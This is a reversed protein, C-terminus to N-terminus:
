GPEILSRLRRARTPHRLKQLAKAEIQRIRERTVSFDNGVEELTHDSREGIGFRMRLVKSERPTLTALVQRTRAALDMSMVADGPSVATEDEILDGLHTEGDEGIPSELSIPEKTIKMVSRVKEVPLEMRAAIEEITPERGLEQVLRRTTRMLNNITEIMHVPVRITRAHDAISRTIAQRIWWTAYTSFKYGRKYEFKEVAKMLGINGDQILDLFQLGRNTYKKAISVVLRLNAEILESKARLLRRQGAAIARHATRLENISLDSDGAIQRLKTEALQLDRGISEIDDVPIHLQRAIQRAKAPNDHAERVLRKVERRPLRTRAEVAAIDQEGDDIRDITEQLKHIIGDYFSPDLNLSALHGSMEARIKVLAGDLKKKQVASTEERLREDLQGIREDCARIKDILACAAEVHQGEDVTEDEDPEPADRIVDHLRARGSRLGEGLAVIERIALPCEIVAQLVAKEGAEIRKAIVVEGERTLLSVASMNRLYIRVSDTSWMPDAAKKPEEGAAPAPRPTPPAADENTADNTADTTADDVRTDAGDVLRVERQGLLSALTDGADPARPDAPEAHDEFGAFRDVWSADLPTAEDADLAVAGAPLHEAGVEAEPPREVKKATAESPRVAAGPKTTHVTARATKLSKQPRTAKLV